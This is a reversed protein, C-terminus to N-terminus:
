KELSEIVVTKSAKRELRYDKLVQELPFGSYLKLIASMLMFSGQFQPKPYCENEARFIIDLIQLIEALSVKENYATLRIVRDGEAKRGKEIIIRM